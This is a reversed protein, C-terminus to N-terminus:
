GNPMCMKREMGDRPETLTVLKKLERYTDRVTHREPRNPATPDLDHCDEFSQETDSVAIKAGAASVRDAIVCIQADVIVLHRGTMSM